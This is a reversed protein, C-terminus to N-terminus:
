KLILGSQPKDYTEMRNTLLQPHKRQWIQMSPGSLKLVEGEVICSSVIGAAIKAALGGTPTSNRRGASATSGSNKGSQNSQIEQAIQNSLQCARARKTDLNSGERNIMKFLAEAIKLQWRKSVVLSLNQHLAQDAETLQMGKNVEKNFSGIGVAARANAKVRPHTLPPQYKQM